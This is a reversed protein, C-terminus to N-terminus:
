DLYVMGTAFGYAIRVNNNGWGDNVIFFRNLMNSGDRLQSIGYGLVWHNKYLPHNNILLLYPVNVGNILYSSHNWIGIPPTTDDCVTVSDRKLNSIMPLAFALGSRLSAVSSGMLDGQNGRIEIHNILYDHLGSPNNRWESSLYASDIHDYYYFLLITAALSGCTGQTNYDLCRPEYKLKTDYYQGTAAPLIEDEINANFTNYEINDDFAKSVDKLEDYSLELYEDFIHQYNEEKEIYYELPGAYYTKDYCNIYPSDATPSYEIINNDNDIIIYGNECDYCQAIRNDDYNLLDHVTLVEGMNEENLTCEVIHPILDHASNEHAFVDFSCIGSIISVSISCSLFRQLLKM